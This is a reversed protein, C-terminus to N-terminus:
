DLTGKKAHSKEWADYKARSIITARMKGDVFGEEDELLAYLEPTLWAAKRSVHLTAGYLNPTSVEKNENPRVGTKATFDNVVESFDAGHFDIDIEALVGNEFHWTVPHPRSNPLSEILISSSSAPAILALVSHCTAIEDPMRKDIVIPMGQRSLDELDDRNPLRKLKLHFKTDPSSLVDAYVQHALAEIDHKSLAHIQEPTMPKPESARCADLRSQLGPEAAFFHSVNEGLQHGMLVPQSFAPFAVIMVVFLFRYFAM